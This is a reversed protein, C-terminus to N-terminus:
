ALQDIITRLLHVKSQLEERSGNNGIVFDALRTKREMPWQASMRKRVEGATIGDREKVRAIRVPEDADVVVVFDLHKDMGSEFILAAEIVVLRNGAKGLDAVRHGLERFVAPHVIAEISGRIRKNSFVKKAVYARNLSGEALYAESGLLEKIAKIVVPDTEEIEIALPDASLVPLGQDRLLRCVTTKGSGIGGTVGIARTTGKSFRGGRTSNSPM